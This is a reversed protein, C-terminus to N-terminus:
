AAPYPPSPYLMLSRPRRPARSPAPQRPRRLPRPPPPSGPATRAAPPPASAPRLRPRSYAPRAAACASADMGGMHMELSAWAGLHVRRPGVGRRGRRPRCSAGASRRDYSAPPPTSPPDDIRKVPCARAARRMRIFLLHRVLHRFVGPTDSPLADAGRAAPPAPARRAPGARRQGAM